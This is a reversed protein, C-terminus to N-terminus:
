NLRGMLEAATKCIIEYTSIASEAETETRISSDWAGHKESRFRCLNTLKIIAEKTKWYRGLDSQRFDPFVNDFIIQQKKRVKTNLSETEVAKKAKMEQIIEKKVAGKILLYELDTM